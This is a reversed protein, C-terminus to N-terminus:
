VGRGQTPIPRWGAVVVRTARPPPPPPRHQGGATAAQAAKATVYLWFGAMSLAYGGLQPGTVSEGELAVGLAVVGANKATGWVKFTLSSTAGIAAATSANVAFGMMLAVALRAPHAAATALGASSLGARWEFLASAALLALGTPPGLFACVELPSYPRPPGRPSPPPPKLATSGTAARSSARTAPRERSGEKGGGGGGSACPSMLRQMCVVRGAELMVSVLFSALGTWAFRSHDGAASSSSGRRGVEEATAVAAGACILAVAGALRPTVAELGAVAGAALTAAPMLVKLIQIFSVSLTLYAANGFYLTGASCLITPALRALDARSAPPRGLPAALGAGAAAWALGASVLQGLGTLALPYAFGDDVMVRKNVVILTSSAATWALLAALAASSAHAPPPAPAM